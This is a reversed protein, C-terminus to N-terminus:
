PSASSALAWPMVGEFTSCFGPCLPDKILIGPYIHIGFYQGFRM